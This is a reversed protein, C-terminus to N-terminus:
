METCLLFGPLKVPFEVYPWSGIWGLFCSLNNLRWESQVTLSQGANLLFIFRVEADKQAGPQASSVLVAGPSFM